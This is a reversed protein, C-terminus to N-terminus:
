KSLPHDVNVCAGSVSSLVDILGVKLRLGGFRAYELRKKRDRQVTGEHFVDGAFVGGKQNNIWGIIKVYGVSM